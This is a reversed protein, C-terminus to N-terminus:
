PNNDLRKEVEEKVEKIIDLAAYIKRQFPEATSLYAARRIQHEIKDLSLYIKTDLDKKM